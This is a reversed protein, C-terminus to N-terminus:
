LLNKVGLTHTPTHWLARWVTHVGLECQQQHVYSSLSSTVSHCQAKITVSWPTESMLGLIVLDRRWHGHGGADGNTSCGECGKIHGPSPPRTLPGLAPISVPAARKGPPAQVRHSHWLRLSASSHLRITPPSLRSVSQREDLGGSM